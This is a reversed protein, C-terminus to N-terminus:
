RNRKRYQSRMKVYNDKEAMAHNGRATEGRKTRLFRSISKGNAYGLAQAMEDVTYEKDAHEARFADLQALRYQQIIEKLYLGTELRIAATLLQYEVGLHEAVEVCEILKTTYLTDALANVIPSPTHTKEDEPRYALIQELTAQKQYKM